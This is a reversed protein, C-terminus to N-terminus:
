YWWWENKSFFFMCFHFSCQIKHRKIKKWHATSTHYIYVSLHAFFANVLHNVCFDLEIMGFMNLHNEREEGVRM